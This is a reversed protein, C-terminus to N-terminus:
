GKESMSLLSSSRSTTTTSVPHSTSCPSCMRSSKLRTLSHSSTHRQQARHM